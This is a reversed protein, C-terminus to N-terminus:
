LETSATTVSADRRCSFLVRPPLRARAAGRLLILPKM